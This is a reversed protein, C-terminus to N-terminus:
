APPGGAGPADRLRNVALIAGWSGVLTVVMAAALGIAAVAGGSAALSSERMFPGLLMVVVFGGIQAAFFAGLLSVIISVIWGVPGRKNVWAEYIAIALAAVAVVLGIVMPGGVSSLPIAGSFQLLLVGVVAGLIIYIMEGEAGNVQAGRADGSARRPLNDMRGTAGALPTGGTVSPFAAADAFGGRVRPCM